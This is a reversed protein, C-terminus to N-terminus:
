ETAFPIKVVIKKIPAPTGEPDLMPQHADSPFLIVFKGPTLVVPRPNSSSKYNEVDKEDNYPRTCDLLEEPKCVNVLERGEVVYFLDIKKHHDEWQTATRTSGTQVTAFTNDTLQYRGAPLSLTATDSLFKFAADWEAKNLKYQQKYVEMDVTANESNWLYAETTCASFTLAILLPLFKKMM